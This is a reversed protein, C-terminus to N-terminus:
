IHESILKPYHGDELKEMVTPPILTYGKEWQLYYYCDICLPVVYGFARNVTSNNSCLRTDVTAASYKRGCGRCNDGNHFETAGSIDCVEVVEANCYKGVLHDPIAWRSIINYQKGDLFVVAKSGAVM